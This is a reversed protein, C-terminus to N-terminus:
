ELHARFRKGTEKSLQLGGSDAVGAFAELREFASRSDVEEDALRSLADRIVESQTQGRRISLRKLAAQTKVDVRLTAM